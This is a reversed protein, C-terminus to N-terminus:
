RDEKSKTLKVGERLLAEERRRPDTQEFDSNKINMVAGLHRKYADYTLVNADFLGKTSQTDMYSPFVVQSVLGFYVLSKCEHLFQNVWLIQKLNSGTVVFFIGPEGM